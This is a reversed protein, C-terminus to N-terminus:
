GVQGNSGGPTAGPAGQNKQRNRALVVVVVATALVMLAGFCVAAILALEMM